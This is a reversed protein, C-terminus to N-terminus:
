YNDDSTSTAFFLLVVSFGDHAEPLQPLASFALGRLPADIGPRLPRPVFPRSVSSVLPSGHPTPTESGSSLAAFITV